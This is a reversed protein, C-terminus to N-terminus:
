SCVQCLKRRGDSCLSDHIHTLVHLLRDIGGKKVSERVGFWGDFECFVRAFLYIVHWADFIRVM